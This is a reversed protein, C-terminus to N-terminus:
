TGSRCIRRSVKILVTNQCNVGHYLPLLAGGDRERDGEGHM